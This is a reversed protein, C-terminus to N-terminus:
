VGHIGHAAPQRHVLAPGVDGSGARSRTMPPMVIRNALPLTNLTYKDFLM